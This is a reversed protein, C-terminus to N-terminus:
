YKSHKRTEYSSLRESNDLEWVVKKRFLTTKHYEEAMVSCESLWQSSDFALNM